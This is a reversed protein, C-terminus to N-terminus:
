PNQEKDVRFIYDDISNNGLEKILRNWEPVYCVASCNLKTLRDNFAKCYQETHYVQLVLAILLILFFISILKGILAM